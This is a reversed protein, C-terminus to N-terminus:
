LWLNDMLVLHNDSLAFLHVLLTYRCDELMFHHRLMGIELLFIFFEIIIVLWNQWWSWSSLEIEMLHHLMGAWIDLLVVEFLLTITQSRFTRVREVFALETSLFHTDSTKVVPLTFSISISQLLCLRYELLLFLAHLVCSELWRKWSVPNLWAPVWESGVRIHLAASTHYWIKRCAFTM